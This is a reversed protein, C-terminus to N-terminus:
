RALSEHVWGNGTLVFRQTDEYQVDPMPVQGIQGNAETVWSPVDKLRFLYHVQSTVSSGGLGPETFNVIRTLDPKGYCFGKGPTFVARGKSTLDFIDTTSSNYVARGTVEVLGVDALEANIWRGPLTEHYPYSFEGACFKGNTEMLLLYASVAKAFNKDNVAKPDSCSSFLLTVAILSLRFNKIKM